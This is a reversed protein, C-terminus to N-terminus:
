ISLITSLSVPLLYFSSLYILLYTLSSPLSGRGPPPPPPPHRRHHALCLSLSLSSLSISVHCPSLSNYYYISACTLPFFQYMFLHYSLSSFLLISLNKELFFFISLDCLSLYVALCILSSPLCLSLSLYSYIALCILSPSLPLPPLSLSVSLLFISLYLSFSFYFALCTVSLSSNIALCILTISLNIALCVLSLSVFPYSSFSIPKALKPMILFVSSRLLTLVLHAM